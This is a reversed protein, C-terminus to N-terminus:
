IVEAWLLLQDPTGELPATEVIAATRAGRFANELRRLSPARNASYNTLRDQAVVGMFRDGASTTDFETTSGTVQQGYLRRGSASDWFLVDSSPNWIRPNIPKRTITDWIKIAKPSATVFSKGDDSFAVGAVPSGHLVAEGLRTGSAVDWLAATK